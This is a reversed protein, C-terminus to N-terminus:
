DAEKVEQSVAWMLVHQLGSIAHLAKRATAEQHVQRAMFCKSIFCFGCSIEAVHFTCSSLPTEGYFLTEGGKLGAIARSQEDLASRGRTQGGSLYILLTYRTERSGVKVSEDVHKGFKNGREYRHHVLALDKIYLVNLGQRTAVSCHSM